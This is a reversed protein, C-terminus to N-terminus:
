TLINQHPVLSYYSLFKYSLIYIIRYTLKRIKREVFYIILATIIFILINKNLQWYDGLSNNVITIKFSMQIYNEDLIYILTFTFFDLVM